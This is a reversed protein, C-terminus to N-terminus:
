EFVNDQAYNIYKRLYQKLFANAIETGSDTKPYYATSLSIKVRLRYYVAKWFESVFLPGQDSVISDLLGHLYWIDYIFIKTLDTATM